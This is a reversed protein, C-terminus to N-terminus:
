GKTRVVLTASAVNWGGVGWHSTSGEEAGTFLRQVVAVYSKVDWVSFFSEVNPVSFTANSQIRSLLLILPHMGPEPSLLVTRIPPLFGGGGLFFRQLSWVKDVVCVFCVFYLAPKHMNGMVKSAMQLALLWFIHSILCNTGVSKFM